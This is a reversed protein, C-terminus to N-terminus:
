TPIISKGVRVQKTICTGFLIILARNVRLRGSALLYLVVAVPYSYRHLMQGSAAMMLYFLRM